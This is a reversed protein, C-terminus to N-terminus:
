LEPALLILHRSSEGLTVHLSHSISFNLIVSVWVGMYKPKTMEDWSVWAIKWEGVKSGWWFKHILADIHQCLGRPLKFYAMSYIPVAKAVGKYSGGQRWFFTDDGDM